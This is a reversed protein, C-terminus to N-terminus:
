LRAGLKSSMRKELRAAGLSLPLALVLYIAGAMVFIHLPLFDSSAIDKARLMLEPASILSALSSDKLIAVLANVLSPLAIRMAQPVLIFRYTSFPTMGISLAAERQGRHMAEIGARFIEAIYGGASLGLGLIAAPVADLVIGFPELGYYILLLVVLAPVGRTLEVYFSAIRRLVVNRSLRGMAVVLGVGLGLAFSWFTIQLTVTLARAMRVSWVPWRDAYVALFEGLLSFASM